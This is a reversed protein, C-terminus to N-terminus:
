GEEYCDNKILGFMSTKEYGEFPIFEEEDKDGLGSGKEM